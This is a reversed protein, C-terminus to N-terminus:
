LRKSTTMLSTGIKDSQALHRLSGLTVDVAKEEDMAEQLKAQAREVVATAERTKAAARDIVQQKRAIAVPNKGGAGSAGMLARGELVARADAIADDAGPM